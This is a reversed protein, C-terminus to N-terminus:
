DVPYCIGPNAVDFEDEFFSGILYSDGTQDMAGCSHSMEHFIVNACRCMENDKDCFWMHSGGLSCGDAESLGECPGCSSETACNIRLRRFSSGGCGLRGKMCQKFAPFVEPIEDVMEYVSSLNDLCPPTKGECSEGPGDHILPGACKHAIPPTYIISVDFVACVVQGIVNSILRFINGLGFGRTVPQRGIPEIHLMGRVANHFGWDSDPDESLGGAPTYVWGGSLPPNGMTTTLTGWGRLGVPTFWVSYDLTRTISGETLEVVSNVSWAWSEFSVTGTGSAVLTDYEYVAMVATGTFDTQVTVDGFDVSGITLDSDVQAEQLRGVIHKVNDHQGARTPDVVAPGCHRRGVEDM